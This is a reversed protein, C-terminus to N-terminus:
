PAGIAGLEMLRTLRAPVGAYIRDWIGGLEGQKPSAALAELWARVQEVFAANSGGHRSIVRSALGFHPVTSGLSTPSILVHDAALCYSLTQHATLGSAAQLTVLARSTFPPARLVDELQRQWSPMSSALRAFDGESPIEIPDDPLQQANPFLAASLHMFGTSKEPFARLDVYQLRALPEPIDCAQALLPIVRKPGTLPPGGDLALEYERRVWSSRTAAPTLCVAVVDSQAMAGLIASEWRAGPALHGGAWWLHYGFRSFSAALRRVFPEDEVAYSLFVQPAEVASLTM